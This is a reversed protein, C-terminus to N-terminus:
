RKSLGDKTTISGSVMVKTKGHNGKLGKSEIDEKWKSFMDMLRETTESMFVSNDAYLLESLMGWEALETVIEVVVAFSLPSILLHCCLVNM